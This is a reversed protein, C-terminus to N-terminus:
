ATMKKALDAVDPPLVELTCCPVSLTVTGCADAGEWEEFSASVASERWSIFAPSRAPLTPLEDRTVRQEKLGHLFCRRRVHYEESERVSVFVDGSDGDRGTVYLLRGDDDAFREILPRAPASGDKRLFQRCTNDPVVPIGLASLVGSAGDFHVTRMPRATRRGSRTDYTLCLMTVLEDVGSRTFPVDVIIATQEQRARGAVLRNGVPPRAPCARIREFLRMSLVRQLARGLSFEQQRAVARLVDIGETVQRTARMKDEIAETRSSCAEVDSTLKSGQVSLAEVEKCLRDFDALRM